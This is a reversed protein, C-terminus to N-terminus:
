DLKVFKAAFRGQADMVVYVGAPLRGLDNQGPRLEAVRRGSIDLVRGSGPGPWDFVNRVLTASTVREAIGKGVEAIGTATDRIVYISDGQIDAVYVRGDSPNLCVPQANFSPLPISVLVTDARADLATVHNETGSCTAYVKGRVTDCVMMQGVAAITDTIVNTSADLVGIGGSWGYVYVKNPYPVVCMSQVDGHLDALVTDGDPSFVLLDHSNGAYVRGTVPSCRWAWFSTGVNWRAHVAYTSCDVVYITDGISCFLRNARSAYLMGTTLGYDLDIEHMITDAVGDIVEICGDFCGVYLVNAAPNFSLGGYPGGHPITIRTRVSDGAGDIVAVRRDCACYVRNSVTNLCFGWPNSPVSLTDIVQRTAGDIISVCDQNYHAAYVKNGSPNHLVDKTGSHGVNIVGELYQGWLSGLVGASLSLAVILLRM